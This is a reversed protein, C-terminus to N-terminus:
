HAARRPSHILMADRAWVGLLHGGRMIRTKPIEQMLRQTLGQLAQSMEERGPRRFNRPIKGLRGIFVQWSFLCDATKERVVQLKGDPM